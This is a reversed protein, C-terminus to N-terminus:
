RGEDRRSPWRLKDIQASVLECGAKRLISSSFGGTKVGFARMRCRRAAIADFPSDGVGVAESGDIQMKDLVALYLDPHPKGRNVDSGCAIAECYRAVDILRDYRKLEDRKCTTALGIRFSRRLLRLFLQRVGAFARARDLYKERYVREHKQLIAQKKSKTLLPFLRDLMEGGDYGVYQQLAAHGAKCDFQHLVEKWCQLTQPVCDVLTGEVDFIIAEPPRRNAM